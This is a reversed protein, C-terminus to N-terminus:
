HNRLLELAKDCETETRFELEYKNTKVQYSDDELLDEPNHHDFEIQSDEILNLGNKNVTIGYSM